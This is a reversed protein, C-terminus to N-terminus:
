QRMTGLSLSARSQPCNALGGTEDHGLRVTLSGHGLLSRISVDPAREVRVCAFATLFGGRNQSLM